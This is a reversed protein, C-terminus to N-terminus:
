KTSILQTYQFNYINLHVIGFVRFESKRSQSSVKVRNLGPKKQSEIVPPPPNLGGELFCHQLQALVVFSQM